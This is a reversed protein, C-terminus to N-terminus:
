KTGICRGPQLQTKIDPRSFAMYMMNPMHCNFIIMLRL